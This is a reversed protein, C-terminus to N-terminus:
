DRQFHRQGFLESERQGGFTPLLQTDRDRPSVVSWERFLEVVGSGFGLNPAKAPRAAIERFELRQVRKGFEALFGETAQERFERHESKHGANAFYDFKSWVVTVACDPALMESDLCSQLMAKADQVVAWRKNLRLCKKGDLLLVFNRARRLFHLEQCERTSDRAHEFMEGSVDPFLFDTFTRPTTNSGTRIHLYTPDPKYITRQTDARERQSATRSLYCLEEFAPFTESGACSYGPVRNWQFLEYLSTLLTTKGSGVAGALVVWRVPRSKALETAALESLVKGRPLDIIDSIVGAPVQATKLIDVIPEDPAPLVPGTTMGEGAFGEV